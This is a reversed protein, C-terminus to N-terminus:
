NSLDLGEEALPLRLIEPDDWKTNSAEPTFRNIIERSDGGVHIICQMQVMM